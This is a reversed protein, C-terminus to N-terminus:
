FRLRLSISLISSISSSRLHLPMCIRVLLPPRFPTRIIFKSETRASLDACNWRGRGDEMAGPRGFDRRVKVKPEFRVMDGPGGEGVKESAVCAEAIFKPALPGEFIM